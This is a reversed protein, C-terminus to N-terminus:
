KLIVTVRKVHPKYIMLGKTDIRTQEVDVTLGDKVADNVVAMLEGCVDEIRKAHQEDTMAIFEEM